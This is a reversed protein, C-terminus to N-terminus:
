RTWRAARRRRALAARDEATCTPAARRGAGDLAATAAALQERASQGTAALLAARSRLNPPTAQRGPSASKRAGTASAPWSRSRAPFSCGCTRGAPHTGAPPWRSRTASRCSWTPGRGRRRSSAPAPWSTVPRARATPRQELLSVADLGFMQRIEELLAPPDGHGRLVSGRAPDPGGGGREGARGAGPTLAAPGARQALAMPPAPGQRGPQGPARRHARGPAGGQDPHEQGHAPHRLRGRRSAGLVMQTANEARAFRLLAEPIDDGPLRVSAAASRSWWRM